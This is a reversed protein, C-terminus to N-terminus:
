KKLQEWSQGVPTVQANPSIHHAAFWGQPVEIAYAVVMSQSPVPTEDLPKLDHLELIKGQTDLYAVTLPVYTNRMWFSVPGPEPFVFLMGTDKALSKRFMLGQQMEEPTHAIEVTLHASGITLQVTGNPTVPTSNTRTCALVLFVASIIPLLFCIRKM